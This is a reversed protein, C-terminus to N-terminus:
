RRGECARWGAAFAGRALCLEHEACPSDDPFQCTFEYELDEETAPETVDLLVQMSELAKGAFTGNAVMRAMFERASAIQEPTHKM